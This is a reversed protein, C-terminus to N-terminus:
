QYQINIKPNEKQIIEFCEVLTPYFDIKFSKLIITIEQEMGTLADILADENPAYLEGIYNMFLLLLEKKTRCSEADIIYTM